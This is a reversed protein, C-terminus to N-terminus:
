QSPQDDGGADDVKGAGTAGVMLILGRRLMVLEKLQQPM